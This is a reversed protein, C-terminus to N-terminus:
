NINIRKKIKVYSLSEHYFNLITLRYGVIIRAFTNWCKGSLVNGFFMTIDLKDEHDVRRRLSVLYLAYLMSGCLAWLAGVPIQDEFRLDALSVMVIGGFSFFYGYISKCCDGYM